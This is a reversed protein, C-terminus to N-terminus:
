VEERLEWTYDMIHVKNNRIAYRTLVFSNYDFMTFESDNCFPAIIKLFDIVMDSDEIQNIHISGDDEIDLYGTICGISTQSLSDAEEGWKKIALKCEEVKDPLIELTSDVDM